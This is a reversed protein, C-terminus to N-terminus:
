ATRTFTLALVHWWGLEVTGNLRRAISRILTLRNDPM